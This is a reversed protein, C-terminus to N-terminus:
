QTVGEDVTCFFLAVVANLNIGGEWSGVVRICSDEVADIVNATSQEEARTRKSM